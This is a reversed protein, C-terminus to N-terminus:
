FKLRRLFNKVKQATNMRNLITRAVSVHEYWLGEESKFVENGLDVHQQEFEELYKVADEFNLNEEVFSGTVCSAGNKISPFMHMISWSDDMMNHRAELWVLSEIKKDDQQVFSRFNETQFGRSKKLSEYNFFMSLMEREQKLIMLIEIM